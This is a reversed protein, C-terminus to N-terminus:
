TGGWNSNHQIYDDCYAPNLTPPWLSLQPTIIIYRSSKSTNMQSTKWVQTSLKNHGHYHYRSAVVLHRVAFSWNHLHTGANQASSISSIRILLLQKRVFLGSNPNRFLINGLTILDLTVQISIYTVVWGQNTAPIYNIDSRKWSFSINGQFLSTSM